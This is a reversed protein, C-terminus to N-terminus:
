YIVSLQFIFTFTSFHSITIKLQYHEMQDTSPQHNVPIKLTITQISIHLCFQFQWFLPNFCNKFKIYFKRRSTLFLQTIVLKHQVNQTVIILDLILQKYAEFPFMNWSMQLPTNQVFFTKQSVNLKMVSSRSYKSQPM